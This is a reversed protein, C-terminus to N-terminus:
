NTSDPEKYKQKKKKKKGTFINFTYSAVFGGAVTALAESTDFRGDIIYGDYVEKSIGALSSIAFSYWFAKKSNKTKGYIIAYTGASIAAGVSFHLFDDSSTRQANSSFVLCFTLILFIIKL